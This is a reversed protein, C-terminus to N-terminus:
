RHGGRKEQRSLAYNVLGMFVFFNPITSVRLRVWAWSKGAKKVSVKGQKVEVGQVQNWALTERGHTIGQVSVNLTGFPVVTGANYAAVAGPLLVRTVEQQVTQGLHAINRLISNFKFTAGDGRRVTYTHNTTAYVRFINQWVAEVHDWRVVDAQGGKARVLGNTFVYVRLNRYAILYAIAIPASVIMGIAIIYLRYDIYGNNYNITALILALITVGLTGGLIIGVIAFPNTITPQYMTKFSGLQYTGALQSVAPPMQSVGPTQQALSRSPSPQGYPPSQQQMM